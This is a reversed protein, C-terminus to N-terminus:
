KGLRELGFGLETLLNRDRHLNGWQSIMNQVTQLCVKLMLPFFILAAKLFGRFTEMDVVSMTAILIASTYVIGLADLTGRAKRRAAEEREEIRDFDNM